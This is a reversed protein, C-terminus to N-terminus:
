VPINLTGETLMRSFPRPDAPRTTTLAASQTEPATAAPPTPPAAAQQAAAPPISRRILATNERGVAELQDTFRNIQESKDRSGRSSGFEFAFADSFMKLLAGAITTILGFAANNDGVGGPRAIVFICVILGLVVAGLMLNARMRGDAGVTAQYDRASQRDALERASEEADLMSLKIQLEQQAQQDDRLKSIVEEVSADPGLSATTLAAEVIQEAVTGANKGGIKTALTPFFEAAIKIASSILLAQIM